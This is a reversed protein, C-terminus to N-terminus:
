ITVVYSQQVGNMNNETHNNIHRTRKAAKKIEQERGALFMALRELINKTYHQLEDLLAQIQAATRRSERLIQQKAGELHIRKLIADGFAMCRHLGVQIHAATSRPLNSVGEGAYNVLHVLRRASERALMVLLQELTDPRAQNEPEDLSLSHWLERAKRMALRPDTAILEAIYIIVHIQEKIAKAEAMTRRTLRRQLKRSFRDVRHMTQVAKSGGDSLHINSETEPLETSDPLYKDVYKDAVDLAGELRDAAFNSVRSDLVANGLHKVSDARRLVPKVLHDSMYEKTNWYMLQPPLYVSPVRQEVIDLSRCLFKDVRDISGQLMVVGPLAYRSLSAIREEARTLTWRMLSNSRKIKDYYNEALGMSCEVIPISAIRSVSEMQIPLLGDRKSNASRRM